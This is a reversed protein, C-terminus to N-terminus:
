KKREGRAMIVMVLGSLMDVSYLGSRGSLPKGLFNTGDAIAEV